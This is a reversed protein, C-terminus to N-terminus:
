VRMLGRMLEVGKEVDKSDLVVSVSLEEGGQASAIVNIRNEGLVSFIKGSVGPVNKIRSGYVTVIGVSRNLIMVDDLPMLSNDQSLANLAAKVKACDENKVAISISYESSTQAIFRINVGARALCSMISSTVGVQGLLGTGYITVLDLDKDAIVGSIVGMSAENPDSLSIITGPFDMDDISKVVIPIGANKAPWIAASSFPASSSACYHAAEDYTMSQIGEIGRGEIYFEVCEAGVASSILSALMNAGGKGIRVVYGSDLRGFGGSVIVKKLKGCKEVIARRSLDWDFVPENKEERCVVLENGNVVVSGPVGLSVAEACLLACKDLIYDEVARKQVYLSVGSHLYVIISNLTKSISDRYSKDESFESFYELIANSEKEGSQKHEIIEAILNRFLTEAFKEPRVVAITEEDCLAIIKSYSDRRLVFSKTKM